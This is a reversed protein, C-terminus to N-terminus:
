LKEAANAAGKPRLAELSRRCPRTQCLGIHPSERDGTPLIEKAHDRGGCCESAHRQPLAFHPEDSGRTRHAASDGAVLRRLLRKSLNSEASHRRAREAEQHTQQETDLLSVKQFRLCHAGPCRSATLAEGQGGM